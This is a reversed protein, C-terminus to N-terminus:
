NLDSPPTPPGALHPSINLMEAGIIRIGETLFGNLVKQAELAARIEECEKAWQERQEKHLKRETEMLSILKKMGKEMDHLKQNLDEDKM